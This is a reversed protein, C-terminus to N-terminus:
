EPSDTCIWEVIEEDRAPIVQEPVVEEEIHRTGTVVKKCAKERSLNVAYKVGGYGSEAFRKIYEVSYDTYVKEWAGTGHTIDRVQELSEVYAGAYISYPLPVNPHNRFFDTLDVLQSIFATREAQEREADERAFKEFATEHEYPM